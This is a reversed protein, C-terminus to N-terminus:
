QTVEDSKVTQAIAVHLQGLAIIKDAEPRGLEIQRQAVAALRRAEAIHDLYVTSM